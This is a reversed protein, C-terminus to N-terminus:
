VCRSTYLLCGTVQTELVDNGVLDSYWKFVYSACNNWYYRDRICMKNQVEYKVIKLQEDTLERWYKKHDGNKLAEYQKKIRETM